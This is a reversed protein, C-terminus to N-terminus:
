RSIRKKIEEAIEKVSDVSELYKRAPELLRILHEGVAQKLDAPHLKGEIFSEHLQEYTEFKVDGGYRAPRKVELSYGLDFVFMKAWILVPNYSDDKEPCFAKRVKRLIDDPSDNLFIAGEPKSKSMKLDFIMNKIEEQTIPWKPPASLGPALRQHIAVPKIVNGDADRLPSIKLKTAVQRAIVHAKRQDMGAHVINRQMTFIDAVQLPPYILQAFKVIEGQKRGMISISRKIRALSVHQSVEVFNAWHVPNQEYLDSGLVFQIRDADVGVAKGAAILFHKFSGLAAKKIFEPDGGLKHNIWSHWDALFIIIEADLELLDKIVAMTVIGSGLHPNGSIEFGIYHKLKTGSNVLKELEDPNIIEEILQNNLLKKLAEKKKQDAPM